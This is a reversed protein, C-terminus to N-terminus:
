RGISLTQVIMEKLSRMAALDAEYGRAATMLDVMEMPVEVNPMRVYGAPDADPHGPKYVVQFPSRDEVIGGVRVGRPVDRLAQDMVPEFVVLRRRYPGGGPGGRTVGANAINAAIVDMRLREASLGSASVELGSFFGNMGM